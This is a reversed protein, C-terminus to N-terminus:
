SSQKQKEQIVVEEHSSPIHLIKEFKEIDISV